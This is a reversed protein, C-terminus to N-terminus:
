NALEVVSHAQGTNKHRVFQFLGKADSVMHHNQGIATNGGFARGLMHAFAGVRQNILVHVRLGITRHTKM